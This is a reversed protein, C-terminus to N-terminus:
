WMFVLFLHQYYYCPNTLPDKLLVPPINIQSKNLLAAGEFLKPFLVKSRWAFLPIALLKIGTRQYPALCM